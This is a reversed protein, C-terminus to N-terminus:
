PSPSPTGPGSLVNRIYARGTERADRSAPGHVRGDQGPIAAGVDQFEDRVMRIGHRTRVLDDQADMCGGQVMKVQEHTFPNGGELQGERVDQAGVGCPVDRFDAAVAAGRANMVAQRISTVRAFTRGPSSTRTSPAPDPTDVAAIWTALSAPHVTKTVLELSSFSRFAFARPASTRM